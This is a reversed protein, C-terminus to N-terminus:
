WAAPAENPGAGSAVPTEPSTTNTFSPTPVVVSPQSGSTSKEAPATASISRPVHAKTCFAVLAWAAPAVAIITALLTAPGGKVMPPLPGSMVIGDTIIESSSPLVMLAPRGAVPVTDLRGPGDSGVPPSWESDTLL